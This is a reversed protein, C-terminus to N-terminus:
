GLVSTWLAHTNVVAKDVTFVRNLSQLHLWFFDDLM